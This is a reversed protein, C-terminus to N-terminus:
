IFQLGILFVHVLFITDNDFFTQISGAGKVGYCCVQALIGSRYGFLDLLVAYKLFVVFEILGGQPTYEGLVAMKLMHAAHHKVTVLFATATRSAVVEALTEDRKVVMTGLRILRRIYAVGAVFPATAPEVLVIITGDTSLPFVLRYEHFGSGSDICRLVLKCQKVGHYTGKNGLPLGNVHDKLVMRCDPLALLGNVIIDVGANERDAVKIKGFLDLVLGSFRM